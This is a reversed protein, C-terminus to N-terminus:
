EIDIGKIIYNENYFKGDTDDWPAGGFYTQDFSVGFRCTGYDSTWNVDGAGPAAVKFMDPYRVTLMTTIIAGNSWGMTGM